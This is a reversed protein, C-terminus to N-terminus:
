LVNGRVSRRSLRRDQLYPLRRPILQTIAFVEETWNLLYGKKFTRRAKSLRVQNGVNFKYTMPATSEDGYLRNRVVSENDRNVDVPKIGISRLRSHDYSHMLKQLVDIYKLTNKTKFYKWVKGKLTRNFREVISAKTDNYTTFFSIDNEKSFKQFPRNTFETGIDTLLKEPRRGIKFIKQFVRM